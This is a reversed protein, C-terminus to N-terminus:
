AACRLECIERTTPVYLSRRRGRSHHNPQNGGYFGGGMLFEDEAAAGTAVAVEVGLHCVDNNTDSWSWSSTTDDAGADYQTWSRQNPTAFGGETGLTVWEGGEAVLTQNGAKAIAAIFMNNTDAAASFTLATGGFAATDVPNSPAQVIPSAANFGSPVEIIRASLGTLADAFGSFTITGSGSQGQATWCRGRRLPTAITSWATNTIRETFTIGAHTGSINFSGPDDADTPWVFIVLIGGTTVAFSATTYTSANSTSNIVAVETPTGIAM